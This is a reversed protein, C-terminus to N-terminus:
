LKEQLGNAYRQVCGAGYLEGSPQERMISRNDESISENAGEYCVIIPQKHDSATLTDCHGDSSFQTSREDHGMSEVPFCVAHKDQTNLSPSVNKSIGSGNQKPERDVCNGEIAYCVAHVGSAKETPCINEYICSGGATCNGGTTIAHDIAYCIAEDLLTSLTFSRNETIM